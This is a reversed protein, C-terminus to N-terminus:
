YGPNQVLKSNANLDSTPIPYLNFHADVSTGDSIGGKWPWNYADGTFKGFRILDSRRYGEWHLERAREDLIFDLTLDSTGINGTSNGYARARLENILQVSRGLDAGAAGRLSAEAFMLYADALRFLPFDTDVHTGSPDSGANGSQDINKFKVIAYGDNFNSIDNIELSQDLTFFNGRADATVNTISYTLNALDFTVKYTGAVININGGGLELTGDNPDDDDGYNNAWDNNERFKLLGDALTVYISAVAGDEKLMIDPGSWGGPTSNGVLGWTSDAGLSANLISPDPSPFKNVFASTTRLGAWAGVVGYDSASMSGGISAHVLFTTGGWTKTHVGDYAIPFIIGNANDNDTLFLNEYTSEVSYGNDIVKKSYALSESNKDAGTYVNANLYIRSLLMWVAAKDARAYENAQADVMLNEIALLESEVYNFLDARKIQNPLFFGVEDNETVYPINGFLDLAHSYSLARLFRAEARYAKVQILLDGAVGRDSLKDDSTQRIYENCATIQYFIRDYIARIFKNDANWDMDHFDEIPVDGWGIVAEDTCLEQAQWYGRIYQGFGEDIGEIDSNGHPGEQGTVALGAYLKAIVQRYSEPNDYFVEADIVNPDQLDLDLDNLCSTTAIFLILLTSIIKIYKFKM